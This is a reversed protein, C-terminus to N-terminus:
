AADGVVVNLQMQCLLEAVELINVTCCDIIVYVGYLIRDRLLCNLLMFASHEPTPM